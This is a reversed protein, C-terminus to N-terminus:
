TPRFTAAFPESPDLPTSWAFVSVRVLPFDPQPASLAFHHRAIQTWPVLLAELSAGRQAFGSQRPRNGLLLGVTASGSRYTTLPEPSKILSLNERRGTHQRIAAWHRCIRGDPLPYARSAASVDRHFTAPIQSQYVSGGAGCVLDVVKSRARLACDCCCVQGQACGASPNVQPSRQCAM